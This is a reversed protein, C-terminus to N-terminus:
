ILSPETLTQPAAQNGRAEATAIQRKHGGSMGETSGRHSHVTYEELIM